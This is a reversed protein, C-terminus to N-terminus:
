EPHRCQPLAAEVLELAGEGVPLAGVVGAEGVLELCTSAAFPRGARLRALARIDLPESTESPASCTTKLLALAEVAHPYSDVCGSRWSGVGSGVFRGVGGGRRDEGWLDAAVM